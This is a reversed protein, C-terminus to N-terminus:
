TKEKNPKSNQAPADILNWGAKSYVQFTKKQMPALEGNMDAFDIIWRAKGDHQNQDPKGAQLLEPLAEGGSAVVIVDAIIPQKSAAVVTTITIEAGSGCVPVKESISRHTIAAQPLFNKLELAHETNQALICVRFTRTTTTIPLIIGAQHLQDPNRRAAIRAMRAIAKNRDANQWIHARQREHLTTVRRHVVLPSKLPVLQLRVPAATSEESAFSVVGKHFLSRIWMQKWSDAAALERFTGIMDCEFLRLFELPKKGALDEADPILIMDVYMPCRSQLAHYTSVIIKPESPWRLGEARGVDQRIQRALQRQVKRCRSRTAVAVVIRRDPLHTCLRALLALREADCAVKVLTRCGNPRGVTKLVQLQFTDDPNDKIERVKSHSRKLERTLPGIMESPVIAFDAVGEHRAGAWEDVGHTWQDKAPRQQLASERTAIVELTRRQASYRIRRRPVSLKRQAAPSLDRLPNPCVIAFGSHQKIRYKRM